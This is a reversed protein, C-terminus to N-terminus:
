VVVLLEVVDAGVSVVSKDLVVRRDHAALRDAGHHHDPEVLSALRGPDSDVVPGQARHQEPRLEHALVEGASGIRLVEEAGVRRLRQV